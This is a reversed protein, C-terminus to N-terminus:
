VNQQHSSWGCLQVSPAGRRTTNVHQQLLLRSSSTCTHPLRLASLPLCHMCQAMPQWCEGGTQRCCWVQPGVNKTPCVALPRHPRDIHACPPSLRPSVWWSASASHHAQPADRSPPRKGRRATEAVACFGRPYCKGWWQSGSTLRNRTEHGFRSSHFYVHPHLNAQTTVVKANASVLYIIDVKADRCM